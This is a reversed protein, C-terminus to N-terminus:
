QESKGLGDLIYEDFDHVTGELSTYRGPVFARSKVGKQTLECVLFIMLM